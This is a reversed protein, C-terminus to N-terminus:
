GRAGLDIAGLEEAILYSGYGSAAFAIAVLRFDGLYMMVAFLFLLPTLMRFLFRAM